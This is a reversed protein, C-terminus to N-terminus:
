CDHGQQKSPQLDMIKRAIQDLAESRKAPSLSSLPKATDWASQYDKIVTLDYLCNELLVWCIILGEKEAAELLVPLESSAIFESALFAKSVLLLAVKAGALADKIEERWKSGPKIQTDDWLNLQGSRIAPALAEKIQELWKKDTHSYSIFIGERSTSALSAATSIASIQQLNAHLSTEIKSIYDELRFDPHQLVKVLYRKWIRTDLPNPEEQIAWWPKGSEKIKEQWLRRLIVRQNWLSLSYGLFWISTDDARLVRLLSSPIMEAIGRHSLYDIYHDETIQFSGSAYGGYLKLIAPRKATDLESYTNPDEIDIRKESQTQHQFHGGQSDGIFSVLDIPEKADAFARELANDFCTTVILPYTPTATRSRLLSPLSALFRHLTNPQYKKEFLFSLAADLEAEGDEGTALYQSINEVPLRLKAGRTRLPCGDPLRGLENMGDFPCALERHYGPGIEESFSDLYIALEQNSPPFSSNISWPEELGDAGKPRDCLNIDSGLFPVVKGALIAEVIKRIHLKWLPDDAVSGPM